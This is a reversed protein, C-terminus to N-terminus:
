RTKECAFRYFDQCPDVSRDLATGDLGVRKLTTQVVKKAPPRPRQGPPEARRDAPPQPAPRPEPPEGCFGLCLAGSILLVTRRDVRQM